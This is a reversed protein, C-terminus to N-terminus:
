DDNYGDDEDPEESDHLITTPSVTTSLWWSTKKLKERSLLQHRENQVIVAPTAFITSTNAIPTKKKRKAVLSQRHQPSTSTRLMNKKGAKPKGIKKKQTM